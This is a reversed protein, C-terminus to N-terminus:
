FVDEVLLVFSSLRADLSLVVRPQVLDPVRRRESSLLRGFHDLLIRRLLRRGPNLLAIRTDVWAVLYYLVFCRLRELIPWRQLSKIALLLCLLALHPNPFLGEARQAM